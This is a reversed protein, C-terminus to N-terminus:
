SAYRRSSALLGSDGFCLELHDYDIGFGSCAGLTYVICSQGSCKREFFDTGLLAVAESRQLKGVVLHNRTLSRLMPGRPCPGCSLEAHRVCSGARAWAEPTFTQGTFRGELLFWAAIPLLVVLLGIVSFCAIVVVRLIRRVLRM